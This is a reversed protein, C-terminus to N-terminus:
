SCGEWESTRLMSKLLHPVIESLGVSSRPGDGWIDVRGLKEGLSLIRGHSKWAGLYCGFERSHEVWGPWRERGRTGEAGTVSGDRLEQGLGEPM